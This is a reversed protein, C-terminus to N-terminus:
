HVRRALSGLLRFAPLTASDTRSSTGCASDLVKIGRGGRIRALASSTRAAQDDLWRNVTADTLAAPKLVRKVTSRGSPGSFEIVHTNVDANYMSSPRRVIAMWGGRGAVALRDLEVFPQVMQVEREGGLRIRLLQGRVDLTTVTDLIAGDPRARVILQGRSELAPNNPPGYQAHLVNGGLLARPNFPLTGVSPVRIAETLVKDDPSIRTLRRVADLV